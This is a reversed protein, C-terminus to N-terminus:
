VRAAKGPWVGAPGGPEVGLQGAHGGAAGAGGPGRATSGRAGAQLNPLIPISLHQQPDKIDLPCHCPNLLEAARQATEHGQRGHWQPDLAPLCFFSSFAASGVWRLKTREETLLLLQAQALQKDRGLYDMIDKYATATVTPIPSACM